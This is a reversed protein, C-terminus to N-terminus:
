GPLDDPVDVDRLTEGSPDDARWVVPELVVFDLDVLLARLRREGSALLREVAPGARFRCLAM